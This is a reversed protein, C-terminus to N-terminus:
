TERRNLDVQAEAMVILGSACGRGILWFQFTVKERQVRTHQTFLQWYALNRIEM